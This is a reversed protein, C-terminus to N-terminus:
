FYITSIDDFHTSFEGVLHPTQQIHNPEARKGSANKRFSVHWFGRRQALSRRYLPSIIDFYLTRFNCVAAAAATTFNPTSLFWINTIIAYVCVCVCTCINRMRNYYPNHKNNQYPFFWKNNNAYVSIYTTRCLLSLSLFSFRSYAQQNEYLSLKAAALM